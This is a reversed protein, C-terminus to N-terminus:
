KADALPRAGHKEVLYDNLGKQWPQLDKLGALRLQANDLVSYAPRQIKAGYESTTQPSLDPHLDMQRFIEQAFQYWSCQGTSTCHYTGYRDTALIEWIKGALERTHTPSLVQDDVVRLPKGQRARDIMTEVFNGGKGSSGAMGFLGSSRVIFHKPANAEVASEGARKSIGYISIPDTADTEVRPSRQRGSFVYDTSILVMVTDIAGAVRALNAKSFCNVEFSEQIEDECAETRTLATLDIVHSPRISEILRAVRPYDRVDVDTRGLGMIEGDDPSTRMMDFGLQGRAGIVLYKRNEM